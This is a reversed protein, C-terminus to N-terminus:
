ATVESKVNVIIGGCARCTTIHQVQRGDLMTIVSANTTWQTWRHVLLCWFLRAM